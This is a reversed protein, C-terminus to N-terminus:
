TFLLLAIGVTLVTHKPFDKLIEGRTMRDAGKWAQKEGKQMFKM